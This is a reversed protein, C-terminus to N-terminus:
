DVCRQRFARYPPLLLSLMWHRLEALGVSRRARDREGEGEAEAEADVQELRRLLLLRQAGDDGGEQGDGALLARITALSPLPGPPPISPALVVLPVGLVEAIHYGFKAVLNACLLTQAEKQGIAAKSAELCAELELQVHDSGAHPGAADAARSRVKGSRRAPGGAAARGREGHRNGRV